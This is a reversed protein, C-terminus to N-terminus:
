EKGLQSRTLRSTPSTKYKNAIACWSPIYAHHNSPYFFIILMKWRRCETKGVQSSKESSITPNPRRSLSPRLYHTLNTPQSAVWTADRNIDEFSGTLSAECISLNAFSELVQQRELCPSGIISFGMSEM